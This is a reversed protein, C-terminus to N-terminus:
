AAEFPAPPPLPPPEPSMPLEPQNPDPASKQELEKALAVAAADIRSGTTSSPADPDLQARRMADNADRLAHLAAEGFIKINERFCLYGAQYRDARIHALTLEQELYDNKRQLVAIDCRAKDLGARAEALEQSTRAAHNLFSEVAPHNPKTQDGTLMGTDKAKEADRMRM